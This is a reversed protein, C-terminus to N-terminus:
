AGASRTALVSGPGFQRAGHRTVGIQFPQRNVAAIDFHMLVARPLLPCDLTPLALPPQGGFGMRRHAGVSHRNPQQGRRSRHGITGPRLRQRNQFTSPAARRLTVGPICRRAQCYAPYVGQRQPGFYNSWVGRYGNCTADLARCQRNEIGWHGRVCSGPGIANFREARGAASLPYYRSQESIAGDQQRIATVKGM